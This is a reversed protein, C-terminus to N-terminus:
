NVWFDKEKQTERELVQLEDKSYVEEREGKSGVRFLRVECTLKIGGCGREGPPVKLNDMGWEELEKELGALLSYIRGEWKSKIFLTLRWECGENELGVPEGDKLGNQKGEDGVLWSEKPAWSSQPLFTQVIQLLSSKQEQSFNM